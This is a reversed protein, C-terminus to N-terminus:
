PWRHHNSLPQIVRLLCCRANQKGVGPAAPDHYIEWDRSPARASLPVRQYPDEGAESQPVLARGRHQRGLAKKRGHETHDTQTIIM